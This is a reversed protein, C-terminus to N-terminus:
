GSVLGDGFTGGGLIVWINDFKDVEIDYAHITPLGSTTDFNTWTGQPYCMATSLFLLVICSIIRKM